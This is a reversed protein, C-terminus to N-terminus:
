PLNVSTKKPGRVHFNRIVSCIWLEKISKQGYFTALFYKSWPDKGKKLDRSAQQLIYRIGINKAANVDAHESYECNPCFFTTGERYGDRGCESCSQSTYLPNVLAVKIGFQFSDAKITNVLARLFGKENESIDLRSIKLDELAIVNAEKEIAWSFLWKSGRSIQEAIWNEAQNFNDRMTFLMLEDGFGYLASTSILHRLGLDVGMIVQKRMQIVIYCRSLLKNELVSMSYYNRARRYAVVM